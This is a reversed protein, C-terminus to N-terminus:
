DQRVEIKGRVTDTTAKIYLCICVYSKLIPVKRIQIYFQITYYLVTFGWNVPTLEKGGFVLKIHLDIYILGRNVPGGSKGPRKEKGRSARYIPPRSYKTETIVALWYALLVPSISYLVLLLLHEVREGGSM